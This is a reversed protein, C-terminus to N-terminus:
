CCCGSKKVVPAARKTSETSRQSHTSAPPEKVAPSPKSEPTLDIEEHFPSSVSEEPEEAEKNTVEESGSPAPPAEPTIAEKSEQNDGVDVSIAPTFEGDVASSDDKSPSESSPPNMNASSPRLSRRREESPLQRVEEALVSLQKNSITYRSSIVRSVLSLESNFAYDRMASFRNKADQTRLLDWFEAGSSFKGSKIDKKYAFVLGMAFRLLASTGELLFADVVQLAQEHALLDKFFDRFILALFDDELAGIESLSRHTKPMNKELVKRFAHNNGRVADMTFDSFRGDDSLVQDVLIYVLEAQDPLVSHVLSLFPELVAPNTSDYSKVIADLVESESSVKREPAFASLDPYATLTSEKRQLAFM